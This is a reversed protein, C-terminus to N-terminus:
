KVEIDYVEKLIKKDKKSVEKKGGVIFAPMSISAGGRSSSRPVQRFHGGEYVTEMDQGTKKPTVRFADPNIRYDPEGLKHRRDMDKRYELLVQEKTDIIAPTKMQFSFSSDSIAPPIKPELIRPLHLFRGNEYITEMEPLSDNFIKKDLSLKGSQVSLSDIQKKKSKTRNSTSVQASLNCNITAYLLGFLLIKSYCSRHCDM